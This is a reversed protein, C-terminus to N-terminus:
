RVIVDGLDFPQQYQEPELIPMTIESFRRRNEPSYTRLQYEVGPILRTVTFFGDANTRSWLEEFVAGEVRKNFAVESWRRLNLSFDHNVLPAGSQDVLRGTAFHRPRLTVVLGTTPEGRAIDVVAAYKRGDYAQVLLTAPFKPMWAGFNNDSGDLYFFIDWKRWLESRFPGPAYHSFFTTSIYESPLIEGNEDLIVVSGQLSGWTLPIGFHRELTFSIVLACMFILTGSTIWDTKRTPKQPKKEDKENANEQSM